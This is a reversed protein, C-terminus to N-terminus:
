YAGRATLVAPITLLLLKIDLLLSAKRIYQLDLEVQQEFPINSRGTVQWICTIGPVAMLRQSQYKTYESVESPVAPRPGVLTMDGKLVNILQPLEDISYKRIFQGIPTIRPDNKMKFLLNNKIDNLAMLDHKRQEADIYMSRFKWLHFTKGNKGVRTQKFFASGPSTLRITAIVSILLPLLLIIAVCAVIIDLLRKSLRHLQRSTIGVGVNLTFPNTSHLKERTTFPRNFTNSSM